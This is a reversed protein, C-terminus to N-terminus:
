YYLSSLCDASLTSAKYSCSLKIELVWTVFDPQLAASVDCWHQSTSLPLDSSNLSCLGKNGPLNQFLSLGQRSFITSLTTRQSRCVHEQRCMDACECACTPVKMYEYIHAHVCLFELINTRQTVDHFRTSGLKTRGLVHNM